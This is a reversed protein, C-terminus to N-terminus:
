IIITFCIMGDKTTSAEIKGKHLEVISKAISLGIGYGNKGQSRAKDERYFRDFLKNTDITKINECDNMFQIKTSKGVKETTIKITGNDPTYKVANDIFITILQSISNIDANIFVEKSTDYIFNKNEALAKFEGIEENIVKTISFETYDIKTNGEEVKALNLLSKILSELRKAQKKTSKLWKDNKETKMEMIDLNALIVAVPTKLEHGANTIFQKQAEINKIIPQLVRKSLVSIIIFVISLGVVIIIISKETMSKLNNLQSHCDLFVILEGDDKQTVKYKYNDYYGTGKNGEIIKNLMQEAEEPSISAIYQVNTESIEGNNDLKIYFYRTTFQTEKTIVNAMYDNRPKYDPMKGNNDAIMNLIGDNQRDITKYNNFIIIGFISFTVIISASMAILIFKRQLKQIM